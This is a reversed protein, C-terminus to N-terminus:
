IFLLKEAKLISLTAECFYPMDFNLFHLYITKDDLVTLGHVGLPFDTSKVTIFLMTSSKNRQVVSVFNYFPGYGIQTVLLLLFMRCRHQLRNFQVWATGLLAKGLPHVSTDPIFHLTEQHEGVVGCEMPSEALIGFPHNSIDLLKSLSQKNTRHCVSSSQQNHHICTYTQLM